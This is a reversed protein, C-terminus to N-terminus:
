VVFKLAIAIFVVGVVLLIVAAGSNSQTAIEKEGGQTIPATPINTPIDTPTKTSINTPNKKSSFSAGNLLGKTKISSLIHSKKRQPVEEQSSGITTCEEEKDDSALTNMAPNLSAWSNSATSSNLSAANIIYNNEMASQLHQAEYSDSAITGDETCQRIVHSILAETISILNSSIHVFATCDFTGNIVTPSKAITSSSPLSTSTGGAQLIQMTVTHIGGTTQPIPIQGVVLTTLSQRPIISHDITLIVRNKDLSTRIASAITDISASQITLPIQANFQHYEQTIDQQFRIKSPSTGDNSISFQSLQNSAHLIILFDEIPELESRSLQNIVRTLRALHDFTSATFNFLGLVHVNGVLTKELNQLISSTVPTTLPLFTLIHQSTGILIGDQEPASKTRLDELFTQLNSTVQFM